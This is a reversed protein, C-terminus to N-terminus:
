NNYKQWRKILRDLAKDKIKLEQIRDCINDGIRICRSMRRQTGSDLWSALLKTAQSMAEALQGLAGGLINIDIKTNM